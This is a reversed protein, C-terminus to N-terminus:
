ICHKGDDQLKYVAYSYGVAGLGSFMAGYADALYQQDIPNCAKFTLIHKKSDWIRKSAKFTSEFKLIQNEENKSLHNEEKFKEMKQLIEQYSYDKYLFDSLLRNVRGSTKLDLLRQTVTYYDLTQNERKLQGFVEEINRLTLFYDEESILNPDETDVTEKIYEILKKFDSLDGNSFFIESKREQSELYMSLIRNHYSGYEQPLMTEKAGLSIPNDPDLNGSQSCSFSFFAISLLLKFQAHKRFFVFKAPM